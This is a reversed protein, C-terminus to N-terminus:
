DQPLEIVVPCLVRAQGSIAVRGPVTAIAM